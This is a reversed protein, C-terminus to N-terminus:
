GGDEQNDKSQKSPQLPQFRLDGLEPVERELEKVTLFHCDNRYFLKCDELYGKLAAGRLHLSFQKTGVDFVIIADADAANEEHRGVLLVRGQKYDSSDFRKLPHPRSWEDAQVWIRGEKDKRLHHFADTKHTFNDGQLKLHTKIGELSVVPFFPTEKIREMLNTYFEEEPESGEEWGLILTSSRQMLFIPGCPRRLLVAAQQYQESRHTLGLLLTDGVMSEELSTVKAYIDKSSKDLGRLTVGFKGLFGAIGVLLLVTLVEDWELPKGQWKHILADLAASLVAFVGLGVMTIDDPDPRRLWDVRM